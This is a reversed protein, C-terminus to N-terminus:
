LTLSGEGGRLGSTEQLAIALGQHSQTPLCCWAQSMSLIIPPSLM